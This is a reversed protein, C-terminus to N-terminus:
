VSYITPLTLHTYSVSAISMGLGVSSKSESRSKDIKYFPKFVNEYESKPIGPGDDEIILTIINNSKKLKVEIIKGYKLSNDLINSICRTILNQKGHFIVNPTIESSINKNSYKKITNILLKSLDFKEGKESSGPVPCENKKRFLLCETLMNCSSIILPMLKKELHHLLQAAEASGSCAAHNDQLPSHAFFSRRRACTGAATNKPPLAFANCCGCMMQCLDSLLRSQPVGAGPPSSCTFNPPRPPGMPGWPAGHPGGPGGPAGRAGKPDM